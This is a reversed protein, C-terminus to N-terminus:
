RSPQISRTARLRVLRSQAVEAEAGRASGASDDGPDDIRFTFLANGPTVTTPRGDSSAWLGTRARGAGHTLPVWWLRRLGHLYDTATPAM